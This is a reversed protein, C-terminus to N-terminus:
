DLPKAKDGPEVNRFPIEDYKINVTDRGSWLPDRQITRQSEEEMDSRITSIKEQVNIVVGTGIFYEIKGLSEGTIPDNIENKSLRYILFRDELNVGHIEGRNIVVEYRNVVSAVTAPYIEKELNESM